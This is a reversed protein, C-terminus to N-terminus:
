FGSLRDGREDRMVRVLESVSGGVPEVPEFKIEYDEVGGVEEVIKNLINDILNDQIIEELLQTLEVGNKSAQLKFKEWLEKDIYISTKVKVM